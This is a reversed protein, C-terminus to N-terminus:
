HRRLQEGLQELQELGPTAADHHEQGGPADNSPAGNRMLCALQLRGFAGDMWARRTLAAASITLSVAASM